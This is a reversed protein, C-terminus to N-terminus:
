KVGIGRIELDKVRKMLTDLFGNGNLDDHYCNHMAIIDDLEDEYIWGQAIYRECLDRLETKMLLRAAKKVDAYDCKKKERIAFLQSVIVNFLGSGIIAVVITVVGESLEM